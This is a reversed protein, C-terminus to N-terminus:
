QETRHGVMASEDGHGGEGGAAPAAGGGVLVDATGGENACQPIKQMEM